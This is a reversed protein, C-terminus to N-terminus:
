GSSVKLRKFSIIYKEQIAHKLLGWVTPFHQINFGDSLRTSFENINLNWNWSGDTCNITWTWLRNMTYSCAQRKGNVMSWYWIVCIWNISFVPPISYSCNATIFIIFQFSGWCSGACCVCSVRQFPTSPWPWRWSCPFWWFYFTAFFTFLDYKNKSKM